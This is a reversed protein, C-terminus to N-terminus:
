HEKVLFKMAVVAVYFLIMFYVTDHICRRYGVSLGKLYAADEDARHQKRVSEDLDETVDRKDKQPEM